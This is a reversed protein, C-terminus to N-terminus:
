ENVQAFSQDPWFHMRIGRPLLGLEEAYRYYLALGAQQEPGFEYNLENFYRLWYGYAGGLLTVAKESLADKSALSRRKSELMARHIAAVEQPRALAAERRVAVVAYTMGYGTWSRWLEGLDVVECGHDRWSAKIAHDGILLAADAAALMDDLSPEMTVYEPKGGYYREMLIRLLNVSTASTATLAIRGIKVEEMPRKAFLLISNVRGESSVSLDPLLLFQEHHQGFAFSSIASVDLEGRILAGNLASPVRQVIELPAGTYAQEFQEFIPWVNAYDIRGVTMPRERGM